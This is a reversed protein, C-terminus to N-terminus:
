RPKPTPRRPTPPPGCEDTFTTRRADLGREEAIGGLEAELADMDVDDALAADLWALAPDDLEPRARVVVQRVESKADPREAENTPPTPNKPAPVM